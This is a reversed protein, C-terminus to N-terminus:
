EGPLAPRASRIWEYSSSAKMNHPLGLTHGVEHSSVFRILQCMLADDFRTKGGPNIAATQILHWNRLLSM